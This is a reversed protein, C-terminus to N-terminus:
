FRVKIKRLEYVPRMKLDFIYLATKYLEVDEYNPVIGNIMYPLRKYEQIFLEKYIGDLSLRPNTYYRTMEKTIRYANIGM